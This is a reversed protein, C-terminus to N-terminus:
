YGCNRLRAMRVRLIEKLGHDIQGGYFIKDWAEFFVNVSNPDRALVRLFTSNPAGRDEATEFYTRIKDSVLNNDDISKIRM